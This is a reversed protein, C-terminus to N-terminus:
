ILVFHSNFGLCVELVCLVRSFNGPIELFFQLPALPLALFIKIGELAHPSIKHIHLLTFFVFAGFEDAERGLPNNALNQWGKATEVTSEAILRCPLFDIKVPAHSYLIDIRLKESYEFLISYRKDFRPHTFFEVGHSM